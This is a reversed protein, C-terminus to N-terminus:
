VSIYIQAHRCGHPPTCELRMRPQPGAYARPVSCGHLLPPFRAEGGTDTFCPMQPPPLGLQCRHSNAGSGVSFRAPSPDSLAGPLARPPSLVPRHSPASPHRHVAPRHCPCVVVSEFCTSANKPIIRSDSVFGSFLQLASGVAPATLAGLLRTLGAGHWSCVTCAGAGPVRRLVHINADSRRPWLQAVNPMHPCPVPGATRRLAAGEAVPRPSHSPLFLVPPHGQTLCPPASSSVSGTEQTRYCHKM